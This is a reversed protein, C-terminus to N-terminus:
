PLITIRVPNTYATPPNGVTSTALAQFSLSRGIYVPDNPIPLSRFHPPGPAIPSPGLDSTHSPDLDFDGSPTSQPTPALPRRSFLLNAQGGAPGWLELVLNSGIHAQRAVGLPAFEHAGVDDREVTDLNGDVPRVIGALDPTGAPAALAPATHKTVLFSM